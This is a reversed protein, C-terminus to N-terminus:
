MPSYLHVSQHLFRSRQPYTGLPNMASGAFADVVQVPPVSVPATPAPATVYALPAIGVPSVHVIVTSTVDAIVPSRTFKVSSIVEDKPLEPVAM